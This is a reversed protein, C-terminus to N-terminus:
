RLARRITIEIPRFIGYGNKISLVDVMNVEKRKSKREGYRSRNEM